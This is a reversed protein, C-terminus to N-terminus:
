TLINEEEPTHAHTRKQYPWPFHSLAFAGLRSFLLIGGGFLLLAGVPYGSYAAGFEKYLAGLLISVLMVPIVFCIAIDWLPWVKRGSVAFIHKRMRSAKMLWGVLICELVGGLILAYSNIYHDFISLIHVGAHTTFVVSGAM